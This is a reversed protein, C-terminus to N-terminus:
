KKIVKEVRITGDSMYKKMIVIGQQAKMLRRGNLDYLEFGLAKPAVKVGEIGNVFADYEAQAEDYAKAYDFGEAQSALQVSIANFHTCSAPGALVGVTLMGDTVVIDNVALYLDNTPADGKTEVSDVAAFEGEATASTKVYFVSNMDDGVRESFSSKITYIGAPLDVATQEIQFGSQWQLFTGDAITHPAAINYTGVSYKPTASGEPITWGPMYAADYAGEGLGGGVETNSIYINPNKFFVTMDVTGKAMELTVEDMVEPFLNKGEKIAKYLEAKVRLKLQDALNDDDTLANDVAVVLEDDAAVGLAKLTEAGLRLREVLAAIGTTGYKSPGTTFLKSANNVIPSLADVAAQLAAGDYLKIPEGAEDLYKALDEKFTIFEAMKAFKSESYNDRAAIGGNVVNYYNDVLAHHENMAVIASNLEKTASRYVSPATFAKYEDDYKEIVASLSNYVEGSYLEEANAEKAVMAEALKNALDVVLELTDVGEQGITITYRADGWFTPDVGTESHINSILITYDGATLPATSTRKLTVAESYGEAPTAALKETGLYSALDACNVGKDFTVKIESFDVPLNFSGDEPDISMVEPAAYMWPVTIDVKDNFYAVGDYNPLASLDGDTYVIQYAAEAPNNFTVKVEVDDDLIDETFIYFRGDAFAEVSTIEIEEGDATVTACGEPYIMRSKGTAAVLTAINHKRGLDMLIVQNCYQPVLGTNQVYVHVNDFFFDITQERDKSLNFAISQFTGNGAQDSSLKGEWEYTQWDTTFTPSGIMSWHIYNSPNRHAQTDASGDTSARGDYAVKLATGAPLPEPLAIFFQASWDQEAGVFSTVKIGRTDDKGIGDTIPAQIVSELSDEVEPNNETKWFSITEEGEMDSNTLVNVWRLAPDAGTEVEEPGDVYVSLEVDDIYIDGAFQGFSFIFRKGGEGNCMCKLKVSVWDVDFDVVGFEGVSKYGDEANQFGISIQGPASGRVKMTLTYENNPLFAEDFDHAMQAEWSNVVSPNTIKWTGDVLEETHSNGWGGFPSNGDDFNASLLVKKAASASMACCMILAMAFFMKTIKRM